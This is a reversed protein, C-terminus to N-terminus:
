VRKPLGTILCPKLRTFAKRYNVREKLMMATRSMIIIAKRVTLILSIEPLTADTLFYARLIRKRPSDRELQSRKLSEM